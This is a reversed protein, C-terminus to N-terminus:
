GCVFCTGWLAVQNISYVGMCSLLDNIKLNKKELEKQNLRYSAKSLFTAGPVMKIKHDVERCPPLANPLESTLVEPFKNLSDL